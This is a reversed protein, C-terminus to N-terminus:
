EKLKGLLIKAGANGKAGGDTKGKKATQGDGSDTASAAELRKKNKKLAARVSNRIEKSVDESELFAVIVFSSASCAWDVVHSEIIPFLVNAFGLPPEALKTTKAVPDYSGGLVLTKLMRGAAANNAIHEAEAPDGIALDAVAKVAAGKQDAETELLAESILQCGFSSSVLSEARKSVLELLPQSLSELLGKRRLEPAKKSTTKRIEMIEHLLAKDPDSVLWKAPGALTYLLPLRANISTVIQELRDLRQKEDELSQGLLESLISKATMKTDDPVELSTVLVLKAYQDYAMLEVTDKFCKLIVKRDKASGHAIALCVLRSGSKTFALNRFLDGGGSGDGEKSEVATEIDGKLIELFETHEETGPSLALFYQLMADHLMTFGTMKKQVMSNIMQLVFQLIPKRKEPSKDLIKFLDATEEDGAPIAGKAEPKRHFLAFETGYWERLMTAKQQSSAIQRYIDDVVWSAEPHNILRKVHGYFEPVIMDRIAQDGEVVMKAVLFKGYRSEVLTRIDARLEEVIMRRQEQNAYKLACQIVRVSDHKFVFDRVRGNIIDFLETVLEKREERPVHSKRRLREWIKKSRQIVDANPKAAKREKALARQKAHAEASSTDLKFNKWDSNKGGETASKNNVQVNDVKAGGDEEPFGGFDDDDAAAAEDLRSKKVDATKQKKVGKGASLPADKRKVGGMILHATTSYYTRSLSTTTFKPLVYINAAKSSCKRKEAAFAPPDFAPRAETFELTLEPNPPTFRM